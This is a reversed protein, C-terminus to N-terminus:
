PCKTDRLMELQDLSLYQAQLAWYASDKDKANVLEFNVRGASDFELFRGQLTLEMVAMGDSAYEVKGSHFTYGKQAHANIPEHWQASGFDYSRLSSFNASAGAAPDNGDFSNNFVLMRNQGIFLPGHQVQTRGSAYWLIALTDPHVVALLNLNRASLLLSGAPFDPYLDAMAAPLLEVKNLHVKDEGLVGNDRVLDRWSEWLFPDMSALNARVIDILPISRLLQGTEIDFLNIIDSSNWREFDADSLEASPLGLIALVGDAISYHHHFLGPHSWLVRGCADKRYLGDGGYPFEIFTGDPLMRLSTGILAAFRGSLSDANVGRQYVLTRNQDFVLLEQAEQTRWVKLALGMAAPSDSKRIYPKADWEGTVADLREYRGPFLIGEQGIRVEAGEERIELQTVYSSADILQGGPMAVPDGALQAFVARVTDPISAVAYAMSAIANPEDTSKHTAHQKVLWGFVVTGALGLLIVLLLM